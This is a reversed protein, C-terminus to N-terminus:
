FIMPEYDGNNGWITVHKGYKKNNIYNSYITIRVSDNILYDRIGEIGIENHKNKIRKINM